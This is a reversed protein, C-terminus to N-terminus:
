GPLDTSGDGRRPKETPPQWEMLFAGASYGGGVAAVLVLDGPQLEHSHDHLGASLASLAGAGGQNGAWEVNHWQRDWPIGLKDGVEHLLPINSQHGVFARVDAADVRARSLVDTCTEQTLAIVRSRSFRGDHSFSGGRPVRVKEAFEAENRLATGVIRLGGPGGRRLVLCAASDGWFVSSDRSSYDAWATPREAVCVAIHRMQPDTRLLSEAIVVGYPGSACAANLDFAVAAPAVAQAVFSATAPLLDDVFSTGCIIADLRGGALGATELAQRTAAIAFTSIHEDDAAVRRSDIGLHKESWGVDLDPVTVALDDSTLVSSPHAHGAGVVFVSEDSVSVFSEGEM